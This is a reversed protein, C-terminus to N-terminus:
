VTKRKANKRRGFRKTVVSAITFRAILEAESELEHLWKFLTIQGKTNARIGRNDLPLALWAKIAKETRPNM